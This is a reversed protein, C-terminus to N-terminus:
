VLQLAATSWFPVTFAKIETIEEGYTKIFDGITILKDGETEVIEVTEDIALVKIRSGEHIEGSFAGL